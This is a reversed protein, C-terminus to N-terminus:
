RLIRSSQSLQRLNQEQNIISPRKINSLLDEILFQRHGSLLEFNERNSIISLENMKDPFSEGLQRVTESFKEPFFIKGDLQIKGVALCQETNKLPLIQALELLLLLCPLEFWSLDRQDWQGVVHHRSYDWCIVYRRHPIILNNAKLTYILKEKITRGIQSPMLIELGPLARSSYAFIESLVPQHHTYLVTKLRVHNTEPNPIL